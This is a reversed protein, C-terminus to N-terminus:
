RVGAIGIFVTGTATEPSDPGAVGTLSVGYDARNLRAQAAM